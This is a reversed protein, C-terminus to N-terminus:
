YKMKKKIIFFYLEKYFFILKIVMVSKMVSYIYKIGKFFM